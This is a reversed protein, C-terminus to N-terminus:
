KEFITHIQDMRALVAEQCSRSVKFNLGDVLTITNRSFSDVYDMNVTRGRSVVLFQSPLTKMFDQFVGRVKLDEGGDARKVLIYNRSSEIYEIDAPELMYLRGSHDKIPLLAQEVQKRKLARTFEHAPGELDDKVDTFQIHRMKLRRHVLSWIVTVRQKKIFKGEAFINYEGAVICSKDDSSIVDFKEGDLYGSRTGSIRSDLVDMLKEKGAVFEAQFPGIGIINEDCAEAFESLDHEWLKELVRRTLRVAQKQDSINM